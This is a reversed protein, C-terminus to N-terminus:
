GLRRKSLLLLNGCLQHLNLLGTKSVWHWWTSGKWTGESSHQDALWCSSCNLHDEEPVKSASYGITIHAQESFKTQHTVRIWEQHKARSKCQKRSIWQRLFYGAIQDSLLFQNEHKKTRCNLNGVTRKQTKKKWSTTTAKEPGLQSVGFLWAADRHSRGLGWQAALDRCPGPTKFFRGKFPRFARGAM